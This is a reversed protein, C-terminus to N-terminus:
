SNREWNPKRRKKLNKYYNKGGSQKTEQIDLFKRKYYSRAEEDAMLEEVITQKRQKRPLRSSYFETPGEIITGVQFYKPLQKSDEKKYFHKPDLVNRLRVVQLDRKLEPTLEPKPMDFWGPGTTAERLIVNAVLVASLIYDAEPHEKKQKRTLEKPPDNRENNNNKQPNNHLKAAKKDQGFVIDDIQPRRLSAIGDSRTTIYLHDKISIGADLRPFKLKSPKQPPSIETKSSQQKQKERLSIESNIDDEEENNDNCNIDDEEENNDNQNVLDNKGGNNINHQNSSENIIIYEDNNEDEEDEDDNDNCNIDDEEENNDN